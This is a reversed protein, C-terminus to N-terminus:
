GNIKMIADAKVHRVIIEIPGNDVIAREIYGRHQGKTKLYFITSSPVGDRIQKFLQTEAFDLAINQADNVAAAFEKDDKLWNYFQTRGTSVKKCAATVVGLSSELAKLMQKKSQVTKNM